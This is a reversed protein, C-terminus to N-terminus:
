SDFVSELRWATIGGGQLLEVRGLVLGPLRLAAWRGEGTWAEIVGRDVVVRLARDHRQHSPIRWADTPAHMVITDGDAVFAVEADAGIIRLCGATGLVAEVDVAADVSCTVHSSGAGIAVPLRSTRLTAVDPHASARLAGDPGLTLEVPLSLVGAWRDPSTGEGGHRLWAVGAYHGRADKLVSLAYASAGYGMQQWGGPQFTAGRWQGATALIRSGVNDKMVSTILIPVGGIELYQPCEWVDGLGAGDDAAFIGDLTWSRLDPASYAVVGGGRRRLGAGVLMRWHGPTGWVFPDRFATVDLDSPVRIKLVEPEKRWRILAEDVPRAVRIRGSDAQGATVSTYLLAPESGDIAAAGSWVGDDGDGPSLAVPLHRWRVLDLASVHGWHCDLRWQTSDPVHQYFLHYEGRHYFGGVPDNLWGSLPTVHVHPRTEGQM